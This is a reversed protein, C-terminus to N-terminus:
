VPKRTSVLVAQWREPHSPIAQHGMTRLEYGLPKLESEFYELFADGLWHVECNIKPLHMKITEIAGKLVSLEHGEVDILILDPPALKCQVVYDDLSVTRVEFLLSADKSMDVDGRAIHGLATSDKPVEFRIVGSSDSIALDHVSAHGFHNLALNYRCLSACAPNPEFAEVRGSSGSLKACILAFFGVNAGIDYVVDGESINQSLWIQQEPETTGLVYGPFGHRGNIRLGKAVGSPIIGETDALMAGAKRIVPAFFPFRFQAAGVWRILDGPLLQAIRKLHSKANMFDHKSRALCIKVKLRWGPLHSHLKGAGPRSM